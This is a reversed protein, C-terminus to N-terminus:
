RAPEVDDRPDDFHTDADERECSLSSTNTQHDRWVICKQTNLIRGDLQSSPISLKVVEGEATAYAVATPGAKVAALNKRMREDVKAATIEAKKQARPELLYLWMGGAGVVLWFTIHSLNRVTFM